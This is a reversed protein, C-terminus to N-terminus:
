GISLIIRFSFFSFFIIVCTSFYFFSFSLPRFISGQPVGPKYRTGAERYLNEMQDNVVEWRSTNEPTVHYDDVSFALM